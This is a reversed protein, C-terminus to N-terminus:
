SRSWFRTDSSSPMALPSRAMSCPRVKDWAFARARIARHSLYDPGLRGQAIEFGDGVEDGEVVWVRRGRQDSPHEFVHFLEAAERAAPRAQRLESTQRVSLQDLGWAADDVPGIPGAHEDNMHHPGLLPEPEPAQGSM